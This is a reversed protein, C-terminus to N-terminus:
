VFFGVGFYRKPKVNVSFLQKVCVKINRVQLLIQCKYEMETRRDM